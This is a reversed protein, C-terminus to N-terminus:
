SGLSVPINVTDEHYPIPLYILELSVERLGNPKLASAPFPVEIVQSTRMGPDLRNTPAAIFSFSSHPLDIAKGEPGIYEIKGGILRAAQDTSDNIVTLKARFVPPGVLKGSGRAVREAVRLDQLEGTLFSAKVFSVGPKLAITKEDVRVPASTSARGVAQSSAAIALLLIGAGIWVWANSLDHRSM